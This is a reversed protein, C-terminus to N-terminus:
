LWHPSRILEHRTTTVTEKGLGAVAREAEVLGGAGAGFGGLPERVVNLPTHEAMEHAAAQEVVASGGVHESPLGGAAEAQRPRGRARSSSHRGM